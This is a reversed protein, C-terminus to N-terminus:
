ELLKKAGIGTFTKMVNDFILNMDTTIKTGVFLRQSTHSFAYGIRVGGAPRVVNARVNQLGVLLGTGAKPPDHLHIELV